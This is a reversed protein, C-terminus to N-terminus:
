IRDIWGRPRRIPHIVAFLVFLEDLCVDVVVPEDGHEGQRDCITLSWFAILFFQVFQDANHQVADAGVGLGDAYVPLVHVGVNDLCLKELEPIFDKELKANLAAEEAKLEKVLTDAMAPDTMNKRMTELRHNLFDIRQKASAKANKASIYESENGSEIAREEAVIAKQEAAKEAKLMAEVDASKDHQASVISVYETLAKNYHEGHKM